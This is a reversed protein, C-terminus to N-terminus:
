NWICKPPSCFGLKTVIDYKNIDNSITGHETLTKQASDWLIQGVGHRVENGSPVCTISLMTLEPVFLNSRRPGAEHRSEGASGVSSDTHKEKKHNDQQTDKASKTTLPRRAFTGNAM